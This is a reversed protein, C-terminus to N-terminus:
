SSAKDNQVFGDGVPPKTGHVSCPQGVSIPQLCRKGGDLWCDCRWGGATLGAWGYGQEALQAARLLAAALRRATGPDYGFEGIEITSGNLYVGGIGPDDEYDVSVFVHDAAVSVKAAPITDVHITADDACLVDDLLHYADLPITTSATGEVTIRVRAGDRVTSADISM